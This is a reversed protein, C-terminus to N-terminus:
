LDGMWDEPRHSLHLAAAPAGGGRGKKVNPGSIWDPVRVQTGRVMHIDERSVTIERRPHGVQVEFTDISPNHSYGVPWYVHIDEPRVTKRLMVAARAVWNRAVERLKAPDKLAFEERGGPPDWDPRGHLVSQQHRLLRSLYAAANATHDSSLTPPGEPVSDLSRVVQEAADDAEHARRRSEWAKRAAASRDPDSKELSIPPRPAPRATEAGFAARRAAEQRAPDAKELVGAIAAAFRASLDTNM